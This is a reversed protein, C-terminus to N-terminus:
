TSLEEICQERIDWVEEASIVQDQCWVAIFEEHARVKYEGIQDPEIPQMLIVNKSIASFSSERTTLDHFIGGIELLVHAEPIYALRPDKIRIGPTNNPDMKYICLVLNVGQMGLEEAYRALLAHKTSCTGKKEKLVLMCDWRDSNRGYPLKKVYPVAEDFSLIGLEKFAHTIPQLKKSPM